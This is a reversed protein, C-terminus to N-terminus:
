GLVSVGLLSGIAYTVATAGIGIAFMRLASPLVPKGTLRSTAGGVSLLAVGTVGLSLLTGQVGDVFVFPLLPVLAGVSFTGFSSVAAGTPSGLGEDPDIGLEERAHTDLAVQPDSMLQTAVERALEPDIGKREYIEALEDLEGLRDSGLEHAELHLMRELLERQVRMSIYEGAGMSFAGALLGAIGALLIVERPQDAGAFGMILAANSVLGDNVGFIAARLTGSKGASSSQEGETPGEHPVLGGHGRRRLGRHAQQLEPLQAKTEADEPSLDPM